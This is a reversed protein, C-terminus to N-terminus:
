GYSITYGMSIMLTEKIAPHLEHEIYKTLAESAGRLFVDEMERAVSEKSQWDVGYPYDDMLFHQFKNEQSNDFNNDLSDASINSRRKRKDDPPKTIWFTKKTPLSDFRSYGFRSVSSENAIVVDEETTSREVIDERPEPADNPYDNYNNNSNHHSPPNFIAPKDHRKIQRDLRNTPHCGYAYISAFRPELFNSETRIRMQGRGRAIPSTSFEVGARKLRLNMRCSEGINPGSSHRQSPVLLVLGSVSLDNFMVRSQLSNNSPEFKCKDVRAWTGDRNTGSSPVKVSIRAVTMELPASTLKRQYVIGNEDDEHRNRRSSDRQMADLARELRGGCGDWNLTLSPVHSLGLVLVLVVLTKEMTTIM